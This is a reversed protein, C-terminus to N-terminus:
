KFAITVADLKPTSGFDSGLYARYQIYRNGSHASNITTSSTTYYDASATPGYWTAAQLSAATNASRLQFKLTTNKPVTASWSLNLFTPSPVQTDLVRSTFTHTSSRDSVAGPDTDMIGTGHLTPLDTRNSVSFGAGGGWYIYSGSTAQGGGQSFVIDLFGDGNLDSVLNGDAGATPLEGRNTPSFGTASGWYIYSNLDTITVPPPGPTYDMYNSFVIDLHGDKDLDAVSNGKAGITPLDTRNSPSYGSPSGWYVYSPNQYVLGDDIYNSFVIDLHGDKNLDAVTAKMGGITALDTRNTGSFGGPSGWYIYSNVRHTSSDGENAFVLDLHGDGDLDAVASSRAGSTSLDKRNASNFGTASGWYVHSDLAFTKGDYRRCLVLDLYGDRNLDGVSICQGSASTPLELKNTTSYGAISGWYILATAKSPDGAIDCRRNLVVDVFGDDNLDAAASTEAFVAPLSTRSTTSYGTSSGWYIYSKGSSGSSVDLNPFVLDHFGDGNLDLRDLLQVNGKASVYIKAGGESPTGNSFDSYTDDTLYKLPIGDSKIIDPSTADSLPADPRPGDGPQDPGPGDGPGADPPMTDGGGDVVGGSTVTVVLFNCGDSSFTTTTAGTGLIKGQADIAVAVIALKRPPKDLDKFQFVFSPSPEAFVRILPAGDNVTLTVETKAVSASSIGELRIAIEAEAPRDKCADGKCGAVGLSLLLLACTTARM